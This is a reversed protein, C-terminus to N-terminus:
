NSRSQVSEYGPLAASKSIRQASETLSDSCPDFPCTVDRSLSFLSQLQMESKLASLGLPQLIGGISISATSGSSPDIILLMYVLVHRRTAGRSGVGVCKNMIASLYILAYVCVSMSRGTLGQNSQGRSQIGQWAYHM